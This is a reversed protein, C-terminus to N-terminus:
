VPWTVVFTSGKGLVSEVEIQGKQTQLIDSVIALGLGIGSKTKDSRYFRDFIFPMQSDPIGPGEDIVHLTVNEREADYGTRLRLTSNPAFKLGNDVLNVIVQTTQERDLELTPLDVTDLQIQVNYKSIESQRADIVEAVLANLGIAEPRIRTRLVDLRSIELVSEILRELQSLETTMGEYSEARVEVPAAIYDDLRKDLSEIPVALEQTINAVFRSKLQDLERLRLNAAILENQRDVVREELGALLQVRDLAQGASEAIAILLQLDRADFQRLGSKSISLVGISVGNATLPAIMLSLDDRTTLKTNESSLSRATGTAFALGVLTDSVPIRQQLTAQMWGYAKVAELSDKDVPLAIAGADSHFEQQMTELLVDLVAITNTTARLKLSVDAIRQLDNAAQQSKSRLLNNEIAIAAQNGFLNLRGHQQNSLHDAESIQLCIVGMVEANSVLPIAIRQVHNAQDVAIRIQKAAIVEAFLDQLDPPSQPAPKAVMAVKEFNDEAQLHICAEEYPQILRILVLLQDYFDPQLSATTIQLLISQMLDASEQADIDAKYADMRELTLALRSAISEYLQQHQATFAHLTESAISLVGYLKKPTHIPIIIESQVMEDLIIYQASQSVDNICVTEKTIAVQGILGTGYAIESANPARDGYVRTTHLEVVKELPNAVGIMVSYVSLHAYLTNAVSEILADSSESVNFIRAIEELMRLELVRYAQESSAQEEATVDDFTVLYDYANAISSRKCTLTVNLMQGSPMMQVFSKPSQRPRHTKWNPFYTALASGYLDDQPQQLLRAAFENSSKIKGDNDVVFMGLDVSNIIQDAATRVSLKRTLADFWGIGSM